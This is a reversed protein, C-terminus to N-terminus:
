GGVECLVRAAAPPPRAVERVPNARDFTPDDEWVPWVPHALGVPPFALRQRYRPVRHLRQALSRIM